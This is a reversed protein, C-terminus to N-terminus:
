AYEVQRPGSVFGYVGCLVAMTFTVLVSCINFVLVTRVTSLDAKWLFLAQVSITLVIVMVNSWWYVFRRATNICFIVGALYYIAGFIMVLVVEAHLNAYKPGLVWLFLWPWIRALIVTGGGVGAAAVVAGLYHWKLRAAPLKAFYPELLVINLQSFLLFVQILRTLAGVTAIGSTRGFVGMLMLSIQSQIAVFILNPVSPLILRLIAQRKQKSPEGTVGLVRRSRFYYAAAICVNAGVSIMIAVYENLLHTAWTALLLSVAAVGAIMPARYWDSRHRRLILVAGYAGRARAFWVFTLLMSVLFAVSKASWHQKMVVLPFVIATVPALVSFLRVSLQRLSVVYDAILQLDDIREGILPALASTTGVDILISLSVQFAFILSFKAYGEVPLLRVCLLGYLLNIGTTFGQAALSGLVRHLKTLIFTRASILRDTGPKWTTASVNRTSHGQPLNGISM